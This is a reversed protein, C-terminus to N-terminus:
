GFGVGQLIPPYVEHDALEFAGNVLDAVVMNEDIHM